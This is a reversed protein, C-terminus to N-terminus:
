FPRQRKGIHHQVAEPNRDARADIYQHALDDRKGAVM